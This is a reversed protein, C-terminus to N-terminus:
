LNRGSTTTSWRALSPLGALFSMGLGDTEVPGGLSGGKVPKLGSSIFGLFSKNASQLQSAHFSTIVSIEFISKEFGGGGIFVQVADLSSKFIILRLM